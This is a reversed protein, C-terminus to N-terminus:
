CWFDGAIGMPNEILYGPLVQAPSDAVVALGCGPHPGPLPLHGIEM